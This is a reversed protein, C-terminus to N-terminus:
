NPVSHEFTHAQPICNTNLDCRLILKKLLELFITLVAASELPLPGAQSLNAALLAVQIESIIPPMQVEGTHVICVLM